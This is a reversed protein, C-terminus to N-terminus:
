ANQSTGAANAANKKAIQDLTKTQLNDTYQKQLRDIRRVRGNVSGGGSLELLIQSQAAARAVAMDGKPGWQSDLLDQLSTTLDVTTALTNSVQYLRDMNEQLRANAAVAAEARQEVSRGDELAPLDGINAEFGKTLSLLANSTLEGYAQISSVLTWVMRNVNQRVPISHYVVDNVGPPGPHPRKAGAPAGDFVPPVVVNNCLARYDQARRVDYEAQSETPMRAGSVFEPPVVWNAGSSPDLYNYGHKRGHAWGDPDPAVLDRAYVRGGDPGEPMVVYNM